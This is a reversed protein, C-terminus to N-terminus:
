VRPEVRSVIQRVKELAQAYNSRSVVLKQVDLILSRLGHLLRTHKQKVDLTYAEDVYAEILLSHKKICQLCRKRKHELHDELLLANKYVERLNCRVDLVSEMPSPTKRQIRADIWEKSPPANSWCTQIAKTLRKRANRVQQGVARGGSADIKSVAEMIPEIMACDLSSERMQAALMSEALALKPKANGLGKMLADEVLLLSKVAERAFWPDKM